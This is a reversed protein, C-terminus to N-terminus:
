DTLYMHTNLPRECHVVTVSAEGVCRTGVAFYSAYECNTQEAHVKICYIFHVCYTIRICLPIYLPIYPICIHMCVELAAAPIYPVGAWQMFEQISIAGDGDTDFKRLLLALESDSTIV